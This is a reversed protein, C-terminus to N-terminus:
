AHTWSADITISRLTEFRIRTVGGHLRGYTFPSACRVLWDAVFPGADCVAGDSPRYTASCAYPVADPPDHWVFGHPLPLADQMAALPQGIYQILVIEGKERVLCIRAELPRAM